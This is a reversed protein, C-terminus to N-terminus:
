DMEERSEVDDDGREDAALVDDLNYDRDDPESQVQQLELLLAKANEHQRRAMAVDLKNEQMWAENFFATTLTNKTAAGALDGIVKSLTLREAM